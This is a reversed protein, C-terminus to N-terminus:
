NSSTSMLQGNIMVTDVGDVTYMLTEGATDTIQHVYPAIRKDPACRFQTIVWINKVADACRVNVEYKEGLGNIAAAVSAVNVRPGRLGEYKRTVHACGAAWQVRDNFPANKCTTVQQEQRTLLVMANEDHNFEMKAKRTYNIAHERMVDVEVESGDKAPRKEAYGVALLHPSRVIVPPDKPKDPNTQPLETPIVFFDKALPAGVNMPFEPVSEELNALAYGYICGRKFADSQPQDPNGPYAPAVSRALQDGVRLELAPKTTGDALLVLQKPSCRVMRGETTVFQMARNGSVQRPTGQVFEKGNWVAVPKNLIRQDNLAYPGNATMLECLGGFGTTHETSLTTPPVTTAM